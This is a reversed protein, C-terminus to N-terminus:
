KQLHQELRKSVVPLVKLGVSILQVLSDGGFFQKALVRIISDDDFHVNQCEKAIQLLEADSLDELIIPKTEM